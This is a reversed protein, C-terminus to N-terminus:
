AQTAWVPQLAAAEIQPQETAAFDAMLQSRLRQFEPDAAARPWSQSVALEKVIRGPNRGMILVRDAMQLAEDIDHTVLVLSIGRQRCIQSVEQQLASRTFTDLASFPEDLLLLEPETALSRALAVRQQQGGSLREVHADALAELGLLNLLPAVRRRAERAPMGAFTLGLAANDILSMWPYLAPKQFMLNWKASPALVARGDIQVDGQSPRHMGAIFHLLTSKGCGSRGILALQEGAELQLSIGSLTEATQRPFRHSLNHISVSAGMPRSRNGVVPSRDRCCCAVEAEFLSLYLRGNLLSRLDHIGFCAEATGKKGHFRSRLLSFSSM